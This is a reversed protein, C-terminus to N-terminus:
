QDFPRPIHTKWSLQVVGVPEGAKRGKGYDSLGIEVVAQLYPDQM